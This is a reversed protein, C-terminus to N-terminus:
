GVSDTATNTGADSNTIDNVPGSVPATSVENLRSELLNITQQLVYKDIILAGIIRILENKSKPKMERKISQLADAIAQKDAQTLENNPSQTQSM